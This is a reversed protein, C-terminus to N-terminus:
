GTESVNVIHWRDASMADMQPLFNAFCIIHPNDFVVMKSEYKTNFFMGNKIAEIGGYSLFQEATRPIDIIITKPKVKMCTIAYQMDAAKGSLVIADNQLVLHKTFTTKGVGGITDYYWHITRTHVPDTKIIDVIEQQWWKYKLDFDSFADRVRTDSTNITGQIATDIKKCYNVAANWNKCVELHCGPLLKQVSIFSRANKFKMAGQIHENGSAGVEKQFTWEEATSTILEVYNSPYDNWTIFWLRSKITNRSQTVQAMTDNEM